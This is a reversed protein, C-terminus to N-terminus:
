LKLKRCVTPDSMPQPSQMSTYESYLSRLKCAYLTHEGM